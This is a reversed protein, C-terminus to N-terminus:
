AREAPKRDTHDYAYFHHYSRSDANRVSNSQSHSFPNAYRNSYVFRNCETYPDTHGNRNPNGNAHENPDTPGADREDAADAPVSLM